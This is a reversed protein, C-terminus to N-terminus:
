QGSQSLDYQCQALTNSVLGLSDMEQRDPNKTNIEKIDAIEGSEDMFLESVSYGQGDASEAVLWYREADDSVRSVVAKGEKIDVGVEEYRGLKGQWEIVCSDGFRPDEGFRQYTDKIGDLANKAAQEYGYSESNMAQVGKERSRRGIM